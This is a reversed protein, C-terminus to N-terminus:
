EEQLARQKCATRCAGKCDSEVGPLNSLGGCSGQISRRGRLVGLAMGVFALIFVVLAIFWEIM